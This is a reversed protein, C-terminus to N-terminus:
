YFGLVSKRLLVVDIKLKLTINQFYALYDYHGDGKSLLWYQAEYDSASAMKTEFPINTVSGTLGESEYRTSFKVHHYSKLGMDEIAERLPILPDETEPLHPNEYDNKKRDDTAPKTYKDLTTRFRTVDIETPLGSGQPIVPPGDHLGTYKGLALISNGHPVSIQKAYDYNPTDGPPPAPVDKNIPYPGNVIKKYSVYLWAGNELHVVQGVDPGEAFRVVQDYFLAEPVQRAKEGRNPAAGPVAVTDSGEPQNKGSHFSISETYRFNKLIYGRHNKGGQYLPEAAHQPLPMVNYSYPRQTGGEEKMAGENSWTGALLREVAHLNKVDIEYPM